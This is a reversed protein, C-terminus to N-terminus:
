EDHQRAFEHKVCGKESTSCDRGFNRECFCRPGAVNKASKEIEEGAGRCARRDRRTRKTPRTSRRTVDQARRARLGGEVCCSGHKASARNRPSPVPLTKTNMNYSNHFYILAWTEVIMM